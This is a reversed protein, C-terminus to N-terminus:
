AGLTSKVDWNLCSSLFLLAVMGLDQYSTSFYHVVFVSTVSGVFCDTYLYISLFLARQEGEKSRQHRVRKTKIRMRRKGRRYPNHFSTMLLPASTPNSSSLLRCLPSGTRLLAFMLSSSNLSYFVIYDKKCHMTKGILNLVLACYLIGSKFVFNLGTICLSYLGIICICQKIAFITDKNYM